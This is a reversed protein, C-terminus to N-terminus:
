DAEDKIKTSHADPEFKEEDDDSTLDIVIADNIPQDFAQIRDMVHQKGGPIYEVKVDAEATPETKIAGNPETKIVGINSSSPGAQM